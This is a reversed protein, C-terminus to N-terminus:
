SALTDIGCQPCCENEFCIEHQSLAERVEDKSLGMVFNYKEEFTLTERLPSLPCSGNVQGSFICNVLLGFLLSRSSDAAKEMLSLTYKNKMIVCKKQM